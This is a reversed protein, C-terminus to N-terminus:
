RALAELGAADADLVAGLRNERESSARIASAPPNPMTHIPSCWAISYVIDGLGIGSSAWRAALVEVM